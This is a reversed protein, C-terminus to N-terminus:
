SSQEDCLGLVKLIGLTRGAVLEYEKDDCHNNFGSFIILGYKRVRIGIRRGNWEREGELREIIEWYKLIFNLCKAM